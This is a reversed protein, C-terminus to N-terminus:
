QYPPTNSKFRFPQRSVYLMADMCDKFPDSVYYKGKEWGKVDWSKKKNLILYNQLM